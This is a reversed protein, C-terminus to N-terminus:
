QQIAYELQMAVFQMTSTGYQKEIEVLTQHLQENAKVQRTIAKLTQGQKLNDSSLDSIFRIGSKTLVPLTGYDITVAKSKYTRSYADAVLALSVEDIGEYMPIGISEYNWFFILNKAATVYQKWGLRFEETNHRPSWDSVGLEIAMERAKKFGAIAEILALSVPISATVGTTTIIKKDQIYRKNKIWTSDSFTKALNEKSYWHGTTQKNKLLGAYGLTWVGDCVGVITAGREYQKQIWQILIKNEANHIAPVIVLDSGEPHLRDFDDLSTKIEISLAPFMSMAGKNPALAYVDAIEARKLIGYPVVFDTLETYQNEGIVAVLPKKHNPKISLVELNSLTPDFSQGFLNFTSFVFTFIILLRLSQLYFQKQTNPLNGPFNKTYPNM